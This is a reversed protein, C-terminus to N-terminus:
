SSRLTTTATARHAKRRARRLRVCCLRIWPRALWRLNARFPQDLDGVLRFKWGATECIRATFAFVEAAKEDVLGDPRVDVVVGTGDALRAFYDPTHERNRAGDTWVLRFPQSAMAVVAPDFDLAM